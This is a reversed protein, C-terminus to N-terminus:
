FRRVINFGLHVDGSELGIGRFFEGPVYQNVHTSRTNALMIEFFHGGIARKWGLAWGFSSDIEDILDTNEPVLELVVAAGPRYFWAMGVPVNVAHEFSGADSVYSPAAFLELRRSMQRSVISQVFPSTRDEIGKETLVDAGGRFTISVPFSPAQRIFSWKLAAEYNDQVDSRFLEVQLNRTAGWALGIGIDASGDLGWFNHIDGENIPEAFRHTFRVEWMGEPLILPTPLNVYNGGTRLSSIPTFNQAHVATTVLVSIAMMLLLRPVISTRETM